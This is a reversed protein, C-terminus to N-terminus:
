NPLKPYLFLKMDEGDSGYKKWRNRKTKIYIVKDIVSKLLINKEQATNCLHYSSLVNEIKPIIDDKQMSLKIEKELNEQLSKLQKKIQEKRETLIRTRSLFIDTTYIGQEVLEFAKSQQFDIKELEKQLSTVSEQQMAIAKKIDSTTDILDWNKKFKILWIRLASLVANEVTELDSSVTDCSTYPCILYDPTGNNYPRRVMKRDCKSCVIIGSLPNKIFKDINVPSNRNEKLKRQAAEFLEKAIIPPHLGKALTYENEEARPRSRKVIGDSVTKVTARSGWRILGIYVPNTLIGYITAPVWDRGTSTPVCTENLQRVILSVGYQTVTGDAHPYGNVFWDFIQKVTKAQQKNIKLTYGKDNPIKIREYGFPPKNGLYKGENVSALRGRQLRRNITKYERRSMFLGFEFYEEDFENNPDYTKVPTIIKTDAYKFAQAVIGQDITDGRALREVEMVLVGDWVGQEVERLLQQMVPRASITEGSVIERYIQTINIKQRKALNLLTTEHRALTEGEGRAEAEADARSKRLYICYSLFIVEKALKINHL